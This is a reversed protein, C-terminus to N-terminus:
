VKRYLSDVISKLFYEERKWLGDSGLDLKVSVGVLSQSPYQIVFQINRISISSLAAGLFSAKEIAM